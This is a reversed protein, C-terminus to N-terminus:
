TAAILCGIAASGDYNSAMMSVIFTASRGRLWYISVDSEMCIGADGDMYVPTVTWIYQYWRGYIGADGDMYRRWRGYIGADGDM